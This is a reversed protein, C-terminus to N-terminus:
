KREVFWRGTVTDGPRPNHEFFLYSRKGKVMITYRDGGSGVKASVARRVDLVRDIAYSRGDLWILSRPTVKGSADFAAEVPVYVKSNGSEM